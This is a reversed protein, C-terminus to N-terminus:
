SRCSHLVPSKSGKSAVFSGERENNDWRVRCVSDWWWSPWAAADNNKPWATVPEVCVGLIRLARSRVGHDLGRMVVRWYNVAWLLVLHRQHSESISQAVWTDDRWAKSGKIESRSDGVFGHLYYSPTHLLYHQVNLFGLRSVTCVVLSSWEICNSRLLLFVHGHM